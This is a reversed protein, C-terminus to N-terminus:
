NVEPDQPKQALLHECMYRVEDSILRRGTLAESRKLHHYGKLLANSACRECVKDKNLKYGLSLNIKRRCDKCKFPPKVTAFANQLGAPDSLVQERCAEYATITQQADKQTRVFKPTEFTM